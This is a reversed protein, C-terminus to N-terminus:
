INEWTFPGTRRYRWPYQSCMCRVLTMRYAAIGIGILVATNIVLGSLSLLEGDFLAYVFFRNAVGLLVGYPYIQWLPRWTAALAQGTMYATWGSLGCTFLLFTWIGSGLLAEM